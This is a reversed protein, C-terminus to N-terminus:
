AAIKGDYALTEETVVSLEADEMVQKWFDVEEM